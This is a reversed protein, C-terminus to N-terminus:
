IREMKLRLLWFTFNGLYNRMLEHYEDPEVVGGISMTSYTVKGERIKRPMDSLGHNQYFDHRAIRQSINEASEDLQELALFFRCDGYREKLEDIIKGGYGKGRESECIAFYYLYALDARHVVYAMGIFKDGDYLLWFDARNSTRKDSAGRALVRFAVREERPFATKYLQKVAIADKSSKSFPVFEM